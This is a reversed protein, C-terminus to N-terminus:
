IKQHLLFWKIIKITMVSSLIRHFLATTKLPYFCNGFIKFNKDILLNTWSLCLLQSFIWILNLVNFYTSHIPNRFTKMACSNFYFLLILFLTFKPPTLIGDRHWEIWHQNQIYIYIHVFVVFILTFIALVKISYIMLISNFLFVGVLTVSVFSDSFCDSKSKTTANVDRL